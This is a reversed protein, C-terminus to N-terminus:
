EIYYYRFINNKDHRSDNYENLAKEDMEEYKRLQLLNM